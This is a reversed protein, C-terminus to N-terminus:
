TVNRSDCKMPLSCGGTKVVGRPLTRTRSINKNMELFIKGAALQDAQNLRVLLDCSTEPKRYNCCLFECMPLETGFHRRRIPRLLFLRWHNM